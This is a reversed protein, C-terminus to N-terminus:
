RIESFRQFVLIQIGQNHSRRVMPVSRCGQKSHLGAFM